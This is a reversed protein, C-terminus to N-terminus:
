GRPESQRPHQYPRHQGLGKRSRPLSPFLSKLRKDGKHRCAGTHNSRVLPQVFEEEVSARRGRIRFLSSLRKALPSLTMRLPSRSLSPGFNKNGLAVGQFSCNVVKPAPPRRCSEPNLLVPAQTSVKRECIM